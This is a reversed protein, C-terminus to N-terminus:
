DIVSICTITVTKGAMCISMMKDDEYSIAYEQGEELDPETVDWTTPELLSGDALQFMLGCGDLGKKSVVQVREDCALNIQNNAQCAAMILLTAALLFKQIM